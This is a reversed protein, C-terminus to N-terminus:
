PTCRANNPYLTNFDSMPFGSDRVEAKWDQWALPLYDCSLNCGWGPKVLCRFSFAFARKRQIPSAESDLDIALYPKGIPTPFAYHGLRGALHPPYEAYETVMGASASFTPFIPMSRMLSASIETVKGNKVTFWADFKAQPELRLASLWRNRITFGTVCYDRECARSTLLRKHRETFQRAAAESSKGATLTTLDRLLAEAQSKIVLAYCSLAIGAAGVVLASAGVIRSALRM